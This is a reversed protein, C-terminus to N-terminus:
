PFEGPCRAGKKQTHTVAHVNLCALPKFLDPFCLEDTFLSPLSWYDAPLPTLVSIWDLPCLSPLFLPTRQDGHQTMVDCPLPM